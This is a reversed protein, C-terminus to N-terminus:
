PIVLAALLPSGVLGSGGLAAGVKTGLVSFEDPADRRVDGVLKSVDVFLLGREFLVKGVEAGARSSPRVCGNSCAVLIELKRASGVFFDEAAGLIWMPAGESATATASIERGAVGRHLRSFTGPLVCGFGIDPKEFALLGPENALRALEFSRLLCSALEDLDVRLEDLPDVLQVSSDSGHLCAWMEAM